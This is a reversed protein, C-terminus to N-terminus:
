FHEWVAAQGAREAWLVRCNGGVGGARWPSSLSAGQPTFETLAESSRGRLWLLRSLKDTQHAPLGAPHAPNSHSAARRSRGGARQPGAPERRQGAGASGAAGAAQRPPSPRADGLGGLSCRTPRM